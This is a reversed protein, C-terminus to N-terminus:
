ETIRFQLTMGTGHKKTKITIISTGTKIPNFTIKSNDSSVITCIDTDYDISTITIKEKSEPILFYKLDFTKNVDLNLYYTNSFNDYKTDVLKDNQYVQVAIWHDQKILSCSTIALSFLIILFLFRKM